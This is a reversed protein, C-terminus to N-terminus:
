KNILVCVVCVPVIVIDEVTLSNLVSWYKFAKNRNVAEGKSISEYPERFSSARTAQM